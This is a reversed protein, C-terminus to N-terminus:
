ADKQGGKLYIQIAQIAENASYCVATRYGAAAAHQLFTKQDRTLRNKGYKMEIYLGHYKGVPWPLFIDPVGRKVGQRKMEAGTRGSRAGGNPVHHMFRLPPYRSEMLAAWRFVAAQESAESM